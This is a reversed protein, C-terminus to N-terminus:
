KVLLAAWSLLVRPGRSVGFGTEGAVDLTQEFNRRKVHFMPEIALLRGGPSLTDYVERLFARQDPVEHVMYFALAFDVAGSLGIRDAACRHLTIRDRLREATARRGVRALMEPQLDAAIVRGEPGVMRAMALSAFGGGCGLDLVCMGPEVYPGFLRDPNHLLRRLFNDMLGVHEHPCVHSRPNNVMEAQKTGM